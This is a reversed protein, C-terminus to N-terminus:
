RRSSWRSCRMAGSSSTAPLPTAPWAPSLLLSSATFITSTALSNFLPRVFPTQTQLAAWNDAFADSPLLPVTARFFESEPLTSYTLMLWLPLIWLIALPVLLAHLGISALRSQKVAAERLPHDARGLLRRGDARDFLGGVLRLRFEPQPLGAQLPVTGLTETAGGPGMFTILFPEAFLQMTGIISLVLAFLLVPKLLPLTLSLHQRWRPVGDVSAAEYLDQPINQLGALIIIANYGTWRWTVAMILVATAGWSTNLWDPTPLGLQVLLAGNVAGFQGNFMLRFIASYAVEGVVVPAFFAFRFIGRARLRNSNLALALVTALVLMLPVQVALILFTNRLANLFAVDNLLRGWNVGPEFRYPNVRTNEFSFLFSQVIPWLWFVAFVTLYPALFIHPIAFHRRM